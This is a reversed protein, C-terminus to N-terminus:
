SSRRPRAAARAAPPPPSVPIAAPSARPACITSREHLSTRILEGRLEEGGLLARRHKSGSEDGDQRNGGGRGDQVRLIRADGGKGAGAFLAGAGGHQHFPDDAHWRPHEVAPEGDLVLRCPVSSSGLPCSAMMGEAM